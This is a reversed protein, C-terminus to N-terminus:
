RPIGSETLFIAAYILVIRTKLLRIPKEFIKLWDSYKFCADENSQNWIEPHNIRVTFGRINLNLIFRRFPDRKPQNM